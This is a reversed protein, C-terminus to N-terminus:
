NEEPPEPRSRWRDHFWLWYEPRQRILDEIVATCHRTVTRINEKLDGTLPISLAEGIHLTYGRGRPYCFVPVLPSHTRLHFTALGPTTAAATGFFDVFVAERRLVNQDILIAVMENRGLARLTDRAAQQKYIVHARFFSRIKLLEKEFRPSDLPRAIVNLRTFKSILLPAVEWNGYHASFMLIGKKQKLANVLNKEGELTILRAAREPRGLSLKLIDVVTRGFHRFSNKAIARKEKDSLDNGFARQLNALAIRRRRRDIQHFLSGLGKGLALCVPRPLLFLIGQIMRFLIM